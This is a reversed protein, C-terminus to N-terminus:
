DPKADPEAPDPRVVLLLWRNGGHHLAQAVLALANQEDVVIRGIGIRQFGIQGAATTGLHQDGRIGM